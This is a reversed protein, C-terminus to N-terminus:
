RKRGITGDAHWLAIQGASFGLETLVEDTDQDLTPASVRASTPTRDFRIPPGPVQHRGLKPHDLEVAYHNAVVQPDDLVETPLNYRACPVGAARFRALWEETTAQRFM